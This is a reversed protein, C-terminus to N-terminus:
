RRPTASRRRRARADGPRHDHREPQAEGAAGRRGSGRRDPQPPDRRHRGPPGDRDGDTGRHGQGDGGVRRPVALEIDGAFRATLDVAGPLVETFGPVVVVDDFTLAEFHDFFQDAARPTLCARREKTAVLTALTSVLLTHETTHVRAALDDLPEGPHIPVEATALVPGADVGEDPVLHVMVGTRTRQGLEAEAHAREIAHTGPLEGPLAPHLNVVRNPFQGLFSMTLIRMWGALVVWDPRAEGVLAALRADYDARAEGAPRELVATPM